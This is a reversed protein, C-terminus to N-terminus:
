DAQRPPWPVLASTRKAYAAFSPRRARSRDDLMPISAALFMTAVALPGVVTWWWTPAAALAFLWLSCWFLIEGFYNPHRSYRWMGRDMVDGPSKTRAFRRMQEDAVLEIVAAAIGVALAIWDLAGVSRTGWVLAPVLPLSGLFVVFCPFLHVGMLSILAKPAKTYLDLYRWDEHHLGPWDRAWNATLRVAWIWVVIMVLTIRLGPVGAAHGFALWVAAFPPLVSWWADFMSGNDGALSWGYIILASTLYGLGLAWVPQDPGIAAAVAWAAGVATLYALTVLVLSGPKGLKEGLGRGSM